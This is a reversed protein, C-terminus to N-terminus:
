LLELGADTGLNSVRESDDLLLEAVGLDTVKAQRLVLCSQRHQERQVIQPHRALLQHARLSSHTQLTDVRPASAQYRWFEVALRCSIM